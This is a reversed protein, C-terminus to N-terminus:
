SYSIVNVYTTFFTEPWGGTQFLTYPLGINELKKQVDLKLPYFPIRKMEENDGGYESPIFLKVGAQKAPEALLKQTALGMVGFACILVHVGTLAKSISDASEYDM